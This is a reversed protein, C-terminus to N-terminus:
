TRIRLLAAVLPGRRAKRLSLPPLERDGRDPMLTVDMHWRRPPTRDDLGTMVWGSAILPALARAVRGPRLGTMATLDAASWQDGDDFTDLIQM